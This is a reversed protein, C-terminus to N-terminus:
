QIMDPGLEGYSTKANIQRRYRDSAVPGLEFLKFDQADDFKVLLIEGTLKARSTLRTVTIERGAVNDMREYFGERDFFRNPVSLPHLRIGFQASLVAAVEFVTYPQSPQKQQRKRM